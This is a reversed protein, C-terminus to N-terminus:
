CFDGSVEHVCLFRVSIGCPQATIKQNKIDCLKPVAQHFFKTGPEYQLAVCSSYFLPQIMPIPGLLGLHGVKARPVKQSRKCLAHVFVNVASIM